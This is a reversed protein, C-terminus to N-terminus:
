TLNPFWSKFDKILNDAEKCWEQEDCWDTLGLASLHDIQQIALSNQFSYVKNNELSLKTRWNRLLELKVHENNNM